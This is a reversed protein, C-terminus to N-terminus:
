VCSRFNKSYKKEKVINNIKKSVDDKNLSLHPPTKYRDAISFSSVCLKYIWNIVSSFEQDLYAINQSTNNKSDFYSLDYYIHYEHAKLCGQLFTGEVLKEITIALEKNKQIEYEREQQDVEALQEPSIYPGLKHICAHMLCHMFTKKIKSQKTRKIAQFVDAPPFAFLQLKQEISLPCDELYSLILIEEPTFDDILREAKADWSLATKELDALIMKRLDKPSGKTLPAIAKTPTYNISRSNSYSEGMFPFDWPASKNSIPFDSRLAASEDSRSEIIAQIESREKKVRIHLLPAEKVKFLKTEILDLKKLHKIRSDLKKMSIKLKEDWNFNSRCNWGIRAQNTNIQNNCGIEVDVLDTLIAASIVDETINILELYITIGENHLRKKSKM